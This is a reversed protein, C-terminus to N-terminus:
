ITIYLSVSENPIMCCFEMAFLVTTIIKDFYFDNLDYRMIYDTFILIAMYRLEKDADPSNSIQIVKDLLQNISIGQNSFNNIIDDLSLMCAKALSKDYFSNLGSEIYKFYDSLYENFLSESGQILYYIRSVHLLTTSRKYEKLMFPM